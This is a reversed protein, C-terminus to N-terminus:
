IVMDMEIARTTVSSHMPTAAWAPVAKACALGSTTSAGAAFDSSIMTVPVRSVPRVLNVAM